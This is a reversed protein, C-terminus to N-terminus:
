RKHMERSREIRTIRTNGSGNTSTRSVSSERSISPQSRSFYKDRSVEVQKNSTRSRDVREIRNNGGAATHGQNERTIITTRQITKEPRATEVQRSSERYLVPENGRIIVNSHRDMERERLIPGRRIYRGNEHYFYADHWRHYHRNMYHHFRTAHYPCYRWHVGHHCHCGYSVTYDIAWPGYYWENCSNNYWMRRFKFVWQGSPLLVWFGIQDNNVVILNDWDMDEDDCTSYGAGISVEISPGGQARMYCGPIFLMSVLVPVGLLKFKSM